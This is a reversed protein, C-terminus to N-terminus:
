SHFIGVHCTMESSSVFYFHQKGMSFPMYAGRNLIMESKTTWREPVFENPREFNRPDRHLQYHAMYVVMDGPIHVDGIKLGEPPTSRQSGFLVPPYLRLTENIISDLVPYATQCSFKSATIANNFEERILDVYRPFLTLIIFIESLANATTDSSFTLQSPLYM